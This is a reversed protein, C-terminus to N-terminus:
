KWNQLRSHVAAATIRWRDRWADGRDSGRDPGRLTPFFPRGDPASAPFDDYRSSPTGDPKRWGFADSLLTFSVRGSGTLWKRQATFGWEGNSASAWVRDLDTLLKDTLGKANEERLSGEQSRGAAELLIQTTLEDARAYDRADITKGLETLLRDINEGYEVPPAVPRAPSPCPPPDETIVPWSGSVTIGPLFEPPRDRGWGARAGSAPPPGPSWGCPVYIYADQCFGKERINVRRFQAPRIGDLEPVVARQFLSESVVQALNAQPVDDLTKRLPPANLLRALDILAQGGHGLPGPPVVSGGTMAIRLRIRAQRAHDENHDALLRDLETVFRRVVRLLDVDAPLVAIEGDGDGRHDWTGRDLGVASAADTLMRDLEAQILGQQRVNRASFGQVDCGVVVRDFLQVNPM